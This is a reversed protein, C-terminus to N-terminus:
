ADVRLPSSGVLHVQYGAEMLGDVLWYWDLKSEIAVEELDERFPKLADLVDSIRNPLSRLLIPQKEADFIVLLSNGDHLDIGCSLAM